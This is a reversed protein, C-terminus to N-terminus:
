VFLISVKGDEKWRIIRPKAATRQWTWGVIKPAVFRTLSIIMMWQGNDYDDYYYSYLDYPQCVMEDPCDNKSECPKMKCCDLFGPSWITWFWFLLFIGVQITKKAVITRAVSCTETAIRTRTAIGSWRKRALIRRQAATGTRFWTQWWLKRKLRLM